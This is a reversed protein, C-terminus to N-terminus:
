SVFHRALEVAAVSSLEARAAVVVHLSLLVFCDRKEIIVVKWQLFIQLLGYNNVKGAWPKHTTRVGCM